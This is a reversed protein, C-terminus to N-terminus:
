RSQQHECIAAKFPVGSQGGYKCNAKETSKQSDGDAQKALEANM